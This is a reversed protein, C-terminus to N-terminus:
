ESGMQAALREVEDLLAEVIQEEPVKRVAEGKVFIVGGGKGAAVGVDADRAEGPGNVVCGMVAVTLPAAIGALREEVAKAIPILDVETRGCTPCSVLGPRRRRLELAALIEWAAAVEEVPDATLSVRLTDGIGEALLIALGTASKVTGAWATGAETVGLHLPYDCFAAVKRYAWVTQPVSNAKVSVVIDEFGRGELHEIVLGASEALEEGLSLGKGRVRDDISGANVGVRLPIRAAGAADVVADVKDWDGINGPNIRVKAVGADIAALALRHDFHVDAIVPLPSDAVVARLAEAAARSPVACRVLECGEAALALIQALTAAVDTTKTNTM